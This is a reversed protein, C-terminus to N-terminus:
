LNHVIQMNQLNSDSNADFSVHKHPPVVKLSVIQGGMEIIFNDHQFIHEGEHKM